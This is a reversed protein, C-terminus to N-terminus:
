SGSIRIIPEKWQYISSHVVALVARLVRTISRFAAIPMLAQSFSVGLPQRLSLPTKSAGHSV